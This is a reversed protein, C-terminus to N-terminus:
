VELASSPPPPIYTKGSGTQGYVIASGSVGNVFDMVVRRVAPASYIAAQPTAAGFVEQPRAPWPLAGGAM